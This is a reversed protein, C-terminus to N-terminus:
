TCASTAEGATVSSPVTKRPTTPPPAKLDNSRPSVHFWSAKQLVMGLTTAM